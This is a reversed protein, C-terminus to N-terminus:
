RAAIEPISDDAMKKVEVFVAVSMAALIYWYFYYLGHSAMSVFLRVILSAQIGLALYYYYSKEMAMAKLMKKSRILNLFTERILLFWVITGPIGLEGILQGYLNHSEMAFHHYYGRAIAYCGPGVGLINGFRVMNIGHTLGTFRGWTQETDIRAATSTFVGSTFFMMVILASVIMATKFRKESFFVLTLGFFLFGAVGGRSGSGILATMFIILPIAALAKKYKERFGLMLFFAIPIMQNMNNALAVHGSLLGVDAIYNVGYMEVVGGTKTIYGYLPEYSLYVFMLVFSWAFTQLDKKNHIISVVMFYIIITQIFDHVANKWSLTYDWAFIFSVGISLVLLVFYRNVRNYRLLLKMISNPELMIRAFIILPLIIEVKFQSLIPYHYSAWCYVLFMYGIVAYLPKWMGIVILAMPILVILFRISDPAPM